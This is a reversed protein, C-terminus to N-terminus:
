QPGRAFTQRCWSAQQLYKEYHMQGRDSVSALCSKTGMDDGANDTKDDNREQDVEQREGKVESDEVATTRTVSLHAGKELGIELTSLYSLVARQFDCNTRACGDLVHTITTTKEVRVDLGVRLTRLLLLNSTVVVLVGVVVPEEVGVTSLLIVAGLTIESKNAVVRNDSKDVSLGAAVQVGVVNSSGDGSAVLLNGAVTVQSNTVFLVVPLNLDDAVSGRTVAALDASEGGGETELMFNKSAVESSTVHVQRLPTELLDLNGAGLLVVGAIGVGVPINLSM